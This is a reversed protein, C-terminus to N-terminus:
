NLVSKCFLVVLDSRGIFSLRPVTPLLPSPSPHSPDFCPFGSQVHHGLEELSRFVMWVLFGEEITEYFLFRLSSRDSIPLVMDSM